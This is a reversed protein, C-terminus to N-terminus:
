GKIEAKARNQIVPELEEYGMLRRLVVVIEVVSLPQELGFNFAGGPKDAHNTMAIYSDVADQVFM